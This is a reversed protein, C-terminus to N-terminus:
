KTVIQLNLLFQSLGRFRHTEEVRGVINIDYKGESDHLSRLLHSANRPPNEVGPSSSKAQKRPEVELERTPGAFPDESGRKRKLGTRKPVSIKLVVDNTRVNAAVVPKRDRDDPRLYM